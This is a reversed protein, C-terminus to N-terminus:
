RSSSLAPIMKGPHPNRSCGSASCSSSVTPSPSIQSIDSYSSGIGNAFKKRSKAMIGLCFSDLSFGVFFSVSFFYGLVSRSRKKWPWIRDLFGFFFSFTLSRFRSFLPCRSLLELQPVSAFKFLPNLLTSFLYSRARRGSINLTQMRLVRFFPNAFKFFPSLFTAQLIAKSLSWSTLIINYHKPPM